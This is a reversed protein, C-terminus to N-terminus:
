LRLEPERFRLKFFYAGWKAYGFSRRCQTVGVRKRGRFRLKYFYAGWKARGFSRRANRSGRGKERGFFCNGMRFVKRFQQQNLVPGVVVMM